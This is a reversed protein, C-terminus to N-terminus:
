EDQSTLLHSFESYIVSDEGENQDTDELDQLIELIGEDLLQDKVSENISVLRFLSSLIQRSIKQDEGKLFECLLHVILDIVPEIQDISCCSIFTCIFQVATKRTEFQGEDADHTIINLIDPTIIDSCINENVMLSRDLITAAIHQIDSDDCVLSNTIPTVVGISILKRIADADEQDYIATICTLASLLISKHAPDKTNNYEHCFLDIIEFIRSFTNSNLFSDYFDRITCKKSIQLLLYSITQCHEIHLLRECLEIGKALLKDNVRYITTKFLSVFLHLLIPSIETDSELLDFIFPFLNSQVITECHNQFLRPQNTNYVASKILNILGLFGFKQLEINESIIGIINNILDKTLIYNPSSRSSSYGFLMIVYPLLDDPIIQTEFFTKNLYLLIQGPVLTKAISYPFEGLKDIIEVIKSLDGKILENSMFLFQSEIQKYENSELFEQLDFPKEGDEDSLHEDNEKTSFNKRESDTIEDDKYM